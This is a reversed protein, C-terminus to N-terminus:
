IRYVRRSRFTSRINERACGRRERASAELDNSAARRRARGHSVIQFPDSSSTAALVSYLLLWHNRRDAVFWVAPADSADAIRESVMPLDALGKGFIWSLTILFHSKM